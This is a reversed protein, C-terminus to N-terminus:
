QSVTQEKDQNECYGEKELQEERRSAWSAVKMCSLVVALVALAALVIRIAIVM